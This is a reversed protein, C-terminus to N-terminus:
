DSEILTQLDAIQNELYKIQAAYQSTDLKPKVPSALRSKLNDWATKLRDLASVSEKSEKKLSSADAEIKVNLREVEPM